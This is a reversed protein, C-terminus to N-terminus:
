NRFKHDTMILKYGIGSNLKGLVVPLVSSFASLFMYIYLGLISRWELCRMQLKQMSQIRGSSIARQATTSHTYVQCYISSEGGKQLANSHKPSFQQHSATAWRLRSVHNLTVRTFRLVDNDNYSGPMCICSCDVFWMERIFCAKGSFFLQM